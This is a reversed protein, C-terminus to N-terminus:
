PGDVPCGARGQISTGDQLIQVVKAFETPDLYRGIRGTTVNIGALHLYFFTLSSPSPIFKLPFCEQKPPQRM